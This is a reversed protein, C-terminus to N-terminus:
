AQNAGESVPIVPVAAEIAFAVAIVPVNVFVVFAGILTTYLTVGLKDPTQEPALKGTVTVTFGFGFTVVVCVVSTQEPLGNVTVGDLPFPFMTGIPVVYEQVAGVALPIVPKAAPVFELAIDPVNVFM